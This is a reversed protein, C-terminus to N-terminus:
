VGSIIGKIRVPTGLNLGHDGTTTVECVNTLTTGNGCVFDSIKVPLGIRTSRAYSVYTRVM